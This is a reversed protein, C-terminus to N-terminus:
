RRGRAPIPMKWIALGCALGILGGALADFPYHIGLFVRTTGVLFALVWVVIRARSRWGRTIVFAGAVANAAHGSPFSRSDPVEVTIRLDTITLPPRSRDVWPKLTADVLLHVVAITLVLRVLDISRIARAVALVAGLVLWVAGGIGAVSAWRMVSMLWRPHPLEVIFQLLAADLGGIADTM